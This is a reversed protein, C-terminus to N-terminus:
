VLWQQEVQKWQSSYVLADGAYFPLSFIWRLLWQYEARYALSLQQSLAIGGENGFAPLEVHLMEGGLLGERINSTALCSITAAHVLLSKWSVEPSTIKGIM